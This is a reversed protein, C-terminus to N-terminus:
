ALFYSAAIKFLFFGDFHQPVGLCDELSALLSHELGVIREVAVYTSM